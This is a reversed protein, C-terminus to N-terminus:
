EEREWQFDFDIECDDAENYGVNDTHSAPEVPNIPIDELCKTCIDLYELTTPHKLCSEYDSLSRNCCYCRM